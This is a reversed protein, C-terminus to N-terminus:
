PEERTWQVSPLHITRTLSSPIFPELGWLPAPPRHCVQHLRNHHQLRGHRSDAGVAVVPLLRPSSFLAWSPLSTHHFHFGFLTVLGSFSSLAAPHLSTALNPLAHVWGNRDKSPWLWQESNQQPRPSPPFSLMLSFPFASQLCSFSAEPSISFVLHFCLHSAPSHRILIPKWTHLFHCQHRM